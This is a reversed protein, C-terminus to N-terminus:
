AVGSGRLRHMLVIACVLGVGAPVAMLAFGAAEFRAYAIGSLMTAGALVIGGSLASNVVQVTAAFREPAAASAFRLFGLYTAAFSFAHLLQLPFLVALSPALALAGWRLISAAGGLAILRAPSWSRFFRGVFTLFVIEAMVGTSWLIGVAVAPIEQARWAVASFAYYFGHAGQILASAGLALPLGGSLLLSLDGLRAKRAPTAAALRTGPPLAFATALMLVTGALIWALVAEGGLASVLAGAGLNGIVFTASGFARAPGFEFRKTRAQGMAFADILPIIGTFAAGALGALLLILRPESAPLHLLFAILTLASFGAIADRRRPARDAWLAGLPAALLRGIMGAAAAAGIQEPNLGRAEYWVPMYPLYAGFGFYLAGYFLAFRTQRVRLLRDAPSM